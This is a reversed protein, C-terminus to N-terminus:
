EIVLLPMMNPLSINEEGALNIKTFLKLINRVKFITKTTINKLFIFILKEVKAQHIQV